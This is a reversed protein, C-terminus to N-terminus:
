SLIRYNQMKILLECARSFVPNEPMKRLYRFCNGLFEIFEKKYQEM